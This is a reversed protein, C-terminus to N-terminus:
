LPKRPGRRAPISRSQAARKHTSRAHETRAHRGGLEGLRASALSSRRALGSRVVAGVAAISAATRRAQVWGEGVPHLDAMAMVLGPALVWLPWAKFGVAHSDNTRGPWTAGSRGAGSAHM